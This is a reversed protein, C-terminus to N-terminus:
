VLYMPSSYIFQPVPHKCSVAWWEQDYSPGSCPSSLSRPGDWWVLLLPVPWMGFSSSGFVSWLIHVGTEKGEELLTGGICLSITDQYEIKNKVWVWGGEGSLPNFPTNGLQSYLNCYPVLLNISLFGGGVSAFPCVLQASLPGRAWDTLLYASLAVM